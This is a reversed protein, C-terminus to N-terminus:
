VRSKRKFAFAIAAIAAVFASVAVFILVSQQGTLILAGDPYAASNEASSSETPSSETPSSVKSDAAPQTDIHAVVETDGPCRNDVADASYVATFLCVALILIFFVKLFSHRKM